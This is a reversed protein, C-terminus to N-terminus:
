SVSLLDTILGHSSVCMARTHHVDKVDRQRTIAYDIMHWEKMGPHKSSYQIPQSSTINLVCHCFYHAM